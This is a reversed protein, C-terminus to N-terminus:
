VTVLGSDYIVLYVGYVFIFQLIGRTEDESSVSREAALFLAFLVMQALLFFTGRLV